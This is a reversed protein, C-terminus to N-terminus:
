LKSSSGSGSFGDRSFSRDPQVSKELRERRQRNAHERELRRFERWTMYGTYGYAANPSWCEDDLRPLRFAVSKDDRGAADTEATQKVAKGYDAVLTCYRDIFDPADPTSRLATIRNDLETFRDAVGRDGATRAAAPADAHMDDLQATRVATDGSGLGSLLELNDKARIMTLSSTRIKEITDAHHVLQQQDADQGVQRVTDVLPRIASFEEKVAEWDCRVDLTALQPCLSELLVDGASVAAEARNVVEILDALHNRATAAKKKEDRKGMVVGAGLLGVLAVGCVALMKMDDKNAADQLEAVEDGVQEPDAAAKAGALFAAAYDPPTTARVTERIPTHVGLERGPWDLKLADKVDAGSYAGVSGPDLGIALILTGPAFRTGDSSLLSPDTTTAYNLVADNLSTGYDKFMLYAVRTVETPFDIAKTEKDLRAIDTPSLNGSSDFVTVEAGDAVSETNGDARSGADQGQALVLLAPKKGAPASASPAAKAPLALVALLFLFIAATATM